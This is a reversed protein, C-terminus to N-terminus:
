PEGCVARDAEQVCGAFGLDVVCDFTAPGGDASCFALCGGCAGCIGKQVVNTDLDEFGKIDATM